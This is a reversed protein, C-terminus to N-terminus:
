VGLWETRVQGYEICSVNDTPLVVQQVFRSLFQSTFSSLLTKKANARETQTLREFCFSRERDFYLSSAAQKDLLYKTSDINASYCNVATSKEPTLAKEAHLYIKSHLHTSPRSAVLWCM